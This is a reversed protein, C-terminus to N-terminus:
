KNEGTERKKAVIPIINYANMSAMNDDDIEISGIFKCTSQVDYLVLEPACWVTFGPSQVKGDKTVFMSPKITMDSITYVGGESQDKKKFITSRVVMGEIIRWDTRIPYGDSGKKSPYKNAESITIKKARIM